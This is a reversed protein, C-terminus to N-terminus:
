QCNEPVPQGDLAVAMTGSVSTVEAQIWRVSSVVSRVRLEDLGGEFNRTADTFAGRGITFPDTSTNAPAGAPAALETSAVENGNARLIPATTSDSDDYSLAVHTWEDLAVSNPFSWYGATTEHGRHFQMGTDPQALYWSFGGEGQLASAVEAVRGFGAEGWGSPNIWGSITGGTAFVDPGLGGAGEFLADDTGNFSAAPGAVGAESTATGMLDTMAASDMRSGDLHWVREYAAWVMQPDEASQAQDNGYYLEVRAGQGPAPIEPVGVWVVSTGGSEWAEVEYPLEEGSSSIFRLDAGDDAAAAYDFWEPAIYVAVAFDELVEDGPPGVVAL